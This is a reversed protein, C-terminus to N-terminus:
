CVRGRCRGDLRRVGYPAEPQTRFYDPILPEIRAVYENFKAEVRLALRDSAEPM